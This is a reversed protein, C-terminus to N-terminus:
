NLFPFNGNEWKFHKYVLVAQCDIKLFGWRLDDSLSFVEFLPLKKVILQPKTM